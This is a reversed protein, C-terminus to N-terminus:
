NSWDVAGGIFKEWDARLVDIGPSHYAYLLNEGERTRKAEGLRTRMEKNFERDKPLRSRINRTKSWASFAAHARHTPIREPFAGDFSDGVLRDATLCDLWWEQIPALSAHKQDVLGRTNPAANVDMGSIDYDLLYRLLCAYGGQEMEVRMSQFFERNQRKGNGVTFVAFRREDFTAPVLWDENGIIAVRTLNDVKYPEAGKREINHSAGTILGKLKGEARKDGAWSAEDLVFFLNSELHSNFNGLLYREDDAVMFHPGFLHGVREVLANKGTGKAGKFVLAVLPKEWPRQIMHAFYGLLWNCLREDGNCVNKLAHELFAAVSPNSASAAPEVSFGRWLNYFRPPVPLQPSFVVSDFERRTTRAMWLKSMPVSKDGMPLLKNAFWAHMENPTLRITCFRGKADTTEQLVFAGAKIFAYEDNLRDVPHVGDDVENDNVAPTFVAEPARIGQPERGYKYAHDVKATLEELSWPPTCMENWYDTLLALAQDATCGMDKLKAAVKFTTLDGSEGEVAVPATKLYDLARQRARDPNVGDLVANAASPRPLDFGLRDVLWGPATVIHAHGNIQRYQKGDIQSGPGVIYGGRSRIDLGAGLVNTGQKLPQETVYIIHRGGSPTSQELSAPLEHGELELALLQADGDKGKKNDVDVVVLAQDDGFRTTSIGINYDNGRFWREIQEPDRTARNPYDKIVPLKGNPACPFVHFGREALALAEDLRNM